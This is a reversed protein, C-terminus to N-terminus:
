YTLEVTLTGPQQCNPLYFTIQDGDTVSASISPSLGYSSSLTLNAGLDYSQTFPNISSYPHAAPLNGSLGWRHALYGEIIERNTESVEGDFLLLESIGANLYRSPSDKATSGMTNFDFTSSGSDMGVKDYVSTGNVWESVSNSPDTNYTFSRIQDADLFAASDTEIYQDGGGGSDIGRIIWDRGKMGWWAGWSSDGTDRTGVIPAHREETHDGIVAFLSYSKGTPDFEGRGAVWSSLYDNSGDFLVTPTNDNPGLATKLLPKLSSTTQRFSSLGDTYSYWESVADGDSAGTGEELDDARFIWALGNFSEDTMGGVLGNPQSGGSAVKLNFTATGSSLKARISTITKSGDHWTLGGVSFSTVIDPEPSTFTLEITAM